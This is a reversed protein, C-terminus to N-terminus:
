WEELRLLLGGGGGFDEAFGSGKGPNVKPLHMTQDIREELKGKAEDIAEGPNLMDAAKKLQDRVDRLIAPDSQHATADILHRRHKRAKRMLAQIDAPEMWAPVFLWTDRHGSTSASSKKAHVGKGGQAEVVSSPTPKQEVPKAPQQHYAPANEGVAPAPQVPHLPTTGTPKTPRTPAPNPPCAQQPQSPHAAQTHARKWAAEIKTRDQQPLRRWVAENVDYPM